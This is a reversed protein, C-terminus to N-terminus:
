PESEIAKPFNQWFYEMALGLWQAGRRLIVIPTARLGLEERNGTRLRYGRFTNPVVRIPKVHVTGRWNEGGSSDQYLEFPRRMRDSVRGFARTLVSSTNARSRPASGADPCCGPYLDLWQRRSELYNGPHKARRPNHLTLDFRVLALGAFFHICTSLRCWPRRSGAPVLPNLLRVVVRVPGSELIEFKGALPCFIQGQDSEVTFHTRLQDIATEGAVSVSDFPFHGGSRVVFCAAGTDITLADGQQVLRIEPSDIVPHPVPVIDLRYTAKAPVVARWDLLAWRVSGDPWHDLARAQLKVAQGQEDFLCLQAVDSLLGRPWPIGCTVPEHHRRSHDAAELEIYVM